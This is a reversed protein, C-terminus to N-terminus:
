DRFARASILLAILTELDDDSVYVFQEDVLGHGDPQTVTISFGDTGQSSVDIVGKSGIVDFTFKRM